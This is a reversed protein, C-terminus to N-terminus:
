KRRELPVREAELTDWQRALHNVCNNCSLVRGHSDMCSNESMRSFSRLCPFHMAHSNMGEASTSLWEMQARPFLGGCIYCKYSQGNSQGNVKPVPSSIRMAISNMKAMERLENAAQKKKTTVIGSKGIEYPKFRIDSGTSNAPSKVQSPQSNSNSNRHNQVDALSVHNNVIVSSDEGFAKHKQPISKYCISCVQVMGQPSIPSAGPPPKLTQIFPFYPEKEPNPCCYLLRLSSSPYELACTYCIFTTTDVAAAQRKRLTYNREFHRVRQMEFMDWQKFLHHQCENCAQVRGASDMPRSRSPRPHLMLSPFFQQQPPADPLQKASIYNLSGRKFEDGCVYCVETASNKDPMSLDLIDTGTSSNSNQCQYVPVSTSLPSSRSSSSTNRLDLAADVTIEREEKECNVM